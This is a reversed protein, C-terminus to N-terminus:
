KVYVGEAVAGASRASTSGACLRAPRWIDVCVCVHVCMHVAMRHGSHLVHCVHYTKQDKETRVTRGSLGTESALESVFRHWQSRWAGDSGDASQPGLDDM